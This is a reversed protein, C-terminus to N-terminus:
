ELDFHKDLGRSQKSTPNEIAFIKSEVNKNKIM